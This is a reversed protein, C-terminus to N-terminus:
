VVVGIGEPDQRGAPIPCCPLGAWRARRVDIVRQVVGAADGAENAQEGVDLLLGHEVLDIRAILGKRGAARTGILAPSDPIRRRFREPAWGIGEDGARGATLAI